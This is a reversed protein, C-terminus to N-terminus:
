VSQFIAAAKLLDEEIENRPRWDMRNLIYKSNSELQEQSAESQNIESYVTVEKINFKRFAKIHETGITAGKTLVIQGNVSSANDALIM